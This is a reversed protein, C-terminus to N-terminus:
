DLPMSVGTEHNFVPTELSPAPEMTGGMNARQKLVRALHPFPLTLPFVLGRTLKLISTSYVLENCAHERPSARPPSLNSNLSTSILFM